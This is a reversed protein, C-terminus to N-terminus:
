WNSGSSYQSLTVSTSTDSNTVTGDVVAMGDFLETGGSVTVSKKMTPTGSTSVVMTSGGSSPTLFALALEGNNYLAYWTNATWGQQQGGGPGGGGGPGSGGPGSGSHGNNGSSSSSSESVQYCTQSISSNNELGGIAILTGGQVYLKYGGETNADIGVEPSTAGIAYVVGGKIYCNGNSDIGDNGTAYACVYGGEITLHSSSNIADDSAKSYVHGGTINITSKSEIGESKGSYVNITGGSISMAGDAKIGKPASRYNSNINDTNGTYNNNISSGSYVCIGGSTSANITGDTITLSGDCSLGKGGGGSSTLNLTGGSIEVNGDCGIGASAKTKSTETTTTAEDWVGGGSTTATIDGGTVYVDGDAKIGKAADATVDVNITGGSIYINGSDEDEHDDTQGTSSEGDIEAQIGDDSVGSITLTGSEMLFYENCHIGDGDAALVNVTCNKMSLYEGSKIAHKTLGYVNLTGKGKLETHGKVVLCGKQDGDVCDKLTNETDKKVSIAIRKGDQINLAAGSPNILTLGVLEITAKYSGTLAFEGDTSSGSLSYTIEDVNDASVEDSQVISVHAGDVTPEIYQAVNGAVIVSAKSGDYSVSVTNDIVETADIYMRKVDTLTFAKGMITLTTGDAYIMDGAQAAPFQYTVSDKTLVNLTQAQAVITLLLAIITTLKRM